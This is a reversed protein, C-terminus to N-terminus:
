WTWENEDFKNSILNVKEKGSSPTFDSWKKKKGKRTAAITIMNDKITIDVMGEIGCQDLFKKPLIVGRSNGVARIKTTMTM